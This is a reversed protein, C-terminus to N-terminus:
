PAPDGTKGFPSLLGAYPSIEGYVQAQAERIGPQNLLPESELTELTKELVGYERYLEALLILATTDDGSAQQELARAEATLRDADERSLFTLVGWRAPLTNGNDRFAALRWVYPQRLKFAPLEAPYEASTGPVRASWVVNDARDFLTFSYTAAGPLAPWEFRREGAIMWGPFQPNLRQHSQAPRAMFGGPRSGGMASAVRMAPGRLGAVKSAGKVGGAEVTATAGAPVKFRETNSLLMVVIEGGPGNRVMDGAELRQLLRLPKWAGSGSRYEASGSVQSAIGVPAAAASAALGFMLLFTGVSRVM